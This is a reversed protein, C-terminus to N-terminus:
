RVWLKGVHLNHFKIAIPSRSCPDRALMIKKEIAFNLVCQFAISVCQKSFQIYFFFPYIVELDDM